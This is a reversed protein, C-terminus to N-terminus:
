YEGKDFRFEAKRRPVDNIERSTFVIMIYTLEDLTPDSALTFDKAMMATSELDDWSKGMLDYDHFTIVLFSREGWNMALDINNHRFEQEMAAEIATLVEIKERIQCGSFVTLLLVLLIVRKM